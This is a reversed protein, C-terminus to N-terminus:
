IYMLDFTPLNLNVSVATFSRSTLEAVQELATLSAMSGRSSAISPRGTIVICRLMYLNVKSGFIPLQTPVRRNLFLRQRRCLM